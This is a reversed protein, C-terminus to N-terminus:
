WIDTSETSKFLQSWNKSVLQLAKEAYRPKIMKGGLFEEESGFMSFYDASLVDSSSNSDGESEMSPIHLHSSASVSDIGYCACKVAAKVVDCFINQIGSTNISRFITFGLLYEELFNLKGVEKRRWYAHFNSFQIKKSEM